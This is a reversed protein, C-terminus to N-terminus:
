LRCALLPTVIIAKAGIEYLADMTVNMQDREVMSRVAFWGQEHLPSVTPSQLGPTLKMAEDLCDEPCDYDFMVYKRAVLVGEFRRTLTELGEPNDGERRILVAESYLLPEGFVELGAAKLTTGTEVVDAIVDAVGLQVSSEVAGDLHVVKAPKIGKEDLFRSVLGDFSTAIRKGAVEEISRFQGKPAAFRFNARAFGLALHEVAQAGSDLLLDRGTIGVDVTGAGVYVAVDRPRIFFFEVNNDVDVLVLKRTDRRQKYGAERLLDWAPQALSGKNPIAIRLM